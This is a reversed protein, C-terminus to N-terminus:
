LALEALRLAVECMLADRQVRNETSVVTSFRVTKDIGHLLLTALAFDSAEPDQQTAICHSLLRDAYPRLASDFLESPIRPHASM